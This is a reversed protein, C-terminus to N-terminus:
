KINMYNAALIIDYLTSDEVMCYEKDWSTIKRVNNYGPHEYHYKCYEFIKTLITGTINPLPISSEDCCDCCMMNKVTISIEAVDALVEFEHEDNSQFKLTKMKNPKSINFILNIKLIYNICLPFLFKDVKSIM